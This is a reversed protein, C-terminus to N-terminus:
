RRRCPRRSQRARTARRQAAIYPRARSFIEDFRGSRVGEFRITEIQALRLRETARVDAYPETFVIAAVGGQAIKEACQFCPYTTTYLTAGRAASGAALLAAVEAHIATCLTMAREPWFFKELDVECEHCRWPPEDAPEQMFSGCGPCRAGNRALDSFSSHRVIDRYCRGSASGDIFGYEPEHVCPRTNRPNENFGQGVVDGMVGAPADVIVAGVQRKLCKSGHAASYAFNMLVETPTAYRPIDGTVLNVYDYLKKKLETQTVDNDNVLLVDALDVCLAVQQGYPNEQDRDNENDKSFRDLGRQGTGYIRGLREFRDSAPCELAILYFSHGFRERLAEVEGVNRIGDFVVRGLTEDFDELREVALHALAGPDREERRLRNGMEQLDAREPERGPRRRGWEDRVIDSLRLCKYGLHEVLLGSATSCGSGFPGTLGIATCRSSLAVARCGECHRGKASQVQTGIGRLCAVAFSHEM